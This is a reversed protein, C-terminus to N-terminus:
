RGRNKDNVNNNSVPFYRCTSQNRSSTLIPQITNYEINDQIHLITSKPLYFLLLM